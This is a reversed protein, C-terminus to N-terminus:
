EEQNPQPVTVGPSSSPSNITSPEGSSSISSSIISSTISSSGTPMDTNKQIQLHRTSM